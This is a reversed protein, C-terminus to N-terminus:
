IDYSNPSQNVWPFPKDPKPVTAFKGTQAERYLATAWCATSWGAAEVSFTMHAQRGIKIARDTFHVPDLGHQEMSMRWQESNWRHCFVRVEAEQWLLSAPEIRWSVVADLGEYEESYFQDSTETNTLPCFHLVKLDLMELALAFSTTGCRPSGSVVIM